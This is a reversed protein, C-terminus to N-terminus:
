LDWQNSWNEYYIHDYRSWFSQFIIQICVNLFIFSKCSWRVSWYYNKVSHLFRLKSFKRRNKMYILFFVSFIIFVYFQSFYPPYKQYQMLVQSLSTSREVCTENYDSDTTQVCVHSCMLEEPFVRKWSTYVKVTTGM